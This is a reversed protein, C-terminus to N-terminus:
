IGMAELHRYLKISDYAGDAIVGHIEVAKMSREIMKDVMESDHVDDRSM